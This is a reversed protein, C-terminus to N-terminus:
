WDCRHRVNLTLETLQTCRYVNNTINSDLRRTKSHHMHQYQMSYFVRQECVESIITYTWFWPQFLFGLIIFCELEAISSVSIRVWHGTQYGIIGLVDVTVNVKLKAFISPNSCVCSVSNREVFSQKQKTEDDWRWQEIM